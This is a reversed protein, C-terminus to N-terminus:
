SVRFVLIVRNLFHAPTGSPSLHQVKVVHAGAAAAASVAATQFLVYGAGPATTTLTLVSAGDFLVVSNNNTGGTLNYVECFYM